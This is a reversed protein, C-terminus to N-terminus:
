VVVKGLTAKMKRVNKELDVTHAYTETITSSSHRAFDQAERLNKYTRYYETIAHHRTMHFGRGKMAYGAEACILRWRTQMTRIHLHNGACNPVDDIVVKGVSKIWAEIQETEWQHENVLHGAFISVREGKRKVLKVDTIRKKCVPCNQELFQPSRKITCKKCKGAFLYGGGVERACKDLIPAFEENVPVLVPKLTRKKRPIMVVSLGGPQVDDGRLHMTESVRFGTNAGIAIALWYIPGHKMAVDLIRIMQEATLMKDKPPVWKAGDM